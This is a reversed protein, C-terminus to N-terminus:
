GRRRDRPRGTPDVFGLQTAYPDEATVERQAADWCWRAIRERGRVVVRLAVIWRGDPARSASWAATDLRAGSLEALSTAVAAGLPLASRGARPRLLASAQAARVVEQQESRVPGAYREVRNVPVGAQAAVEEVSAGARLQAQIDRPTLVAATPPAGDADEGRLVRALRQDVPVRHTPRGDPSAGLLVERGDPSLKLVHLARVV